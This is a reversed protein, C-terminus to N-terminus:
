ARCRCLSKVRCDNASKKHGQQASAPELDAAGGSGENDQHRRRDLGM